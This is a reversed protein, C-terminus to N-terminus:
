RGAAGTKLFVQIVGGAADEGYLAVAAAGKIVEIRDITNPEYDDISQDGELRVGDVYILPQTDAKPGVVILQEGRIRIRAGEEAREDSPAGRLAVWTGDPSWVPGVTAIATAPAEEEAPEFSVDGTTTVHVVEHRIVPEGDMEDIATTIFLSGMTGGIVIAVIPVWDERSLRMSVDETSDM